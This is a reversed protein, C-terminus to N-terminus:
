AALGLERAIRAIQAYPIDHCGIKVDGNAAIKDVTFHGVRESHGNRVYPTGSARVREIIPWLRRAHELPVVAGKSTQVQDGKIRLFVPLGYSLRDCKGALWQEINEKEEALKRANRERTEAAKAKRAAKLKELFDPTIKPEPIDWSLGFIGAYKRAISAAYLACELYAEARERATASKALKGDIDALFFEKNKEHDIEGGDFGSVVTFCEHHRAAQRAASINRSTTVGYSSPRFLVVNGHFAGIPYSDRYSYIVRDRFYFTHGSNRGESQSQQAWIHAVMDTSFVTKM